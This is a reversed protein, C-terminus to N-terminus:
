PYVPLDEESGAIVFDDLYTWSDFAEEVRSGGVTTPMRIMRLGDTFSPTFDIPGGGIDTVGGIYETTKTWETEGYRRIWMEYVAQGPTARPDTGSIDIHIRVLTWLNPAGHLDRALNAGLDNESYRIRNTLGNRVSWGTNLYFSRCGVTRDGPCETTNIPVMSNKRLGMIYVFGNNGDTAPYETRTPYIFKAREYLGRQDGSDAAYLWFQFWHNAPIQGIPGEATGYQLYFDTGQGLGLSRPLAEMALVRESGHGPFPGTYGPISDVTYLYGGSGISGDAGYDTNIAKVWSWGHSRFTLHADFTARSAEYEFDDCFIATCPPPPGADPRPADPAGADEIRGADSVPVGADSVPVCSLGDARYGPDCACGAAGASVECRGRGSCTQGACPDSAPVCTTPGVARYGAGCACTAAGGASSCSGGPGCDVNACPDAPDNAVCSTGQAHYGLDCVCLARREAVACLGHDSCRIGACPEAAPTETSCAIALLCPLAIRTHMFQM